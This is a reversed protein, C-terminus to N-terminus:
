RWVGGVSTSWKLQLCSRWGRRRWFPNWRFVKIASFPQLTAAHATAAHLFRQWFILTSFQKDILWKGRLVQNHDINIIEHALAKQCDQCTIFTCSNFQFTDAIHLFSWPWLDSSFQESIIVFFVYHDRGCVSELQYGGLRRRLLSRNQRRWESDSCPVSQCSWLDVARSGREWVWDDDKTSKCHLDHDRWLHEWSHLCRWM